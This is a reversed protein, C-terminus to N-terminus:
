GTPPSNGVLATKAASLHLERLRRIHESTQRHLEAFDYNRFQDDAGLAGALTDWLCLRGAAAAVLGELEELRSLDSYGTLNDNLKLRGMREALRAVGTKWTGRRHGLAELINEILARQASLDSALEVMFDGLPSNPNESGVRTALDHEAAVTALHDHLYITLHKDRM